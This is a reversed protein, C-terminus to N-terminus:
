ATETKAKLLTNSSLFNLIIIFTLQLLQVLRYLAKITHSSNKLKLSM